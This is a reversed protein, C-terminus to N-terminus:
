RCGAKMLLALCPSYCGLLNIFLFLSLPSFSPFSPPLPCSLLLCLLPLFPLSLSPLFSPLLRSSLAPFSLYLLFSRRVSTYLAPLSSISPFAASISHTHIHTLTHTHLRLNHEPQFFALSHFAYLLQLLHVYLPFIVCTNLKNLCFGDVIYITM